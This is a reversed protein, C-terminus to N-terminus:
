SHKEDAVESKLWFARECAPSEATLFGGRALIGGLAGDAPQALTLGKGYAAATKRASLLMQVLSLDAETVKSCDVSIPSATRFAERLLSHSQETTRITRVGDLSIKGGSPEEQSASM